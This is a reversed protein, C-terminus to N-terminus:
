CRNLRASRRIPQAPLADARAQRARKRPKPPATPKSTRSRKSPPPADTNDDELRRKLSTSLHVTESPPIIPVATSSAPSTTAIPATPTTFTAPAVAAAGSRAADEQEFSALTDDFLKVVKDWIDGFDKAVTELRERQEEPSIRHNIRVVVKKVMATWLLEIFGALLKDCAEGWWDSVEPCFGRFVAVKAKMVDSVVDSEWGALTEDMTENRKGPEDFLLVLHCLVYFFSELDDLHDHIPPCGSLLGWLVTVSQFRRIGVGADARQESIDKFTWTAMDLDILIGRNAPSANEAGLLINQVAVDRHLVSKSLLARHAVIADRLAAIAQYRSTFHEISRGYRQMILRSKTKHEFDESVEAEPRYDKTTACDDQFSVMQVVGDIGQGAQLYPLESTKHTARWSDKIFVEQGTKPNTAHWCTTGRGKIEYRVFASHDMNIQYVTALGEADLGEITGSIKRGTTADITWQVTTDLGLTHEDSSGIGLVLRIFTHPDRHINVLPSFYYGGRDHHVLRVHDETVIMSRVFHRNPQKTFINTCYFAMQSAQEVEGFTASDLERGLKVEVVSAVNSYGIGVVYEDVENERQFSPGTAVISIDPCHAKLKEHRYTSDPAHSNIVKRTVGGKKLRGGLHELIRAFISAIPQYLEREENPLRPMEAWRGQRYQDFRYGSEESALYRDISAQDALDHYKSQTWAESVFHVDEGFGQMIESKFKKVRMDRVADEVSYRATNAPPPKSTSSGPQELPQELRPPSPAPPDPPGPQQASKARARTWHIPRHHKQVSAM